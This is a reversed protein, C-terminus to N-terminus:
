GSVLSRPSFKDLMTCRLIMPITSVHATGVHLDLGSNKEVLTHGTNKTLTHIKDLGFTKRVM